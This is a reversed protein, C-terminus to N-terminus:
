LTVKVSIVYKPCVSVHGRTASWLKRATVLVDEAVMCLSGASDTDKRRVQDVPQPAPQGIQGTLFHVM